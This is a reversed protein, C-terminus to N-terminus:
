STKLYCKALLQISELRNRQYYLQSKLRDAEQETDLLQEHFEKVYPWASAKRSQENKGELLNENILHYETATIKMKLRSIEDLKAYYALEIEHITNPVSILLSKVEEM